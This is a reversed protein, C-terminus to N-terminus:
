RYKTSSASRFWNICMRSYGFGLRFETVATVTVPSFSLIKTVAMVTVDNQNRVGNECTIDRINSIKTSDM